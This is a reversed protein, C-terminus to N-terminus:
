LVKLHNHRYSFPTKPVLFIKVSVPSYRTLTGLPLITIALQKIKKLWTKIKYEKAM